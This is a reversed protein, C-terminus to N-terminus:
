FIVKRGGRIYIHGRVPTIVRQGGPTYYPESGADSDSTSTPTDIGTDYDELPLINGFSSWPTAAKYAEIASAPVYLTAKDMERFADFGCYPVEDARCVVTTLSSCDYFAGDEISTVSSPIDISTLSSCGYFTEYEIATVSNPIIIATLSSCKYFAGNEISTVSSPIDISALSSCSAFANSYIRTVSSPIVVSTLSSCCAFACDEISTVSSPIDISTLSSCGYFVESELSTVGSPIVISTLSSCNRFAKVEISTVSNPIVISTLKTCSAFASQEISTVSSPLVISTLICNYFASSGISTVSYTKGRYDVTSPIVIHGSYRLPGNTVMVSKKDYENIEYFIGDVEFDYAWSLTSLMMFIVASFTRRLSLTYNHKM